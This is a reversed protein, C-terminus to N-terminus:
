RIPSLIKVEGNVGEIDKRKVTFKDIIASKDAGTENMFDSVCTDNVDFYHCPIIVKAELKVSLKYAEAPGIVSEGGIPVFVIDVGDIKELTEASLDADCLPGLICLNMSELRLTYITNIRRGEYNALSDLGTITVGGAEYEGPGDIVFPTKNSNFTNDSGNFDPHDLSILTIDAGFKLPQKVADSEKSAPNVAIITDGFQIKFTQLGAFNIIM